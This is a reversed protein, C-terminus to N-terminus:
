NILVVTKLKLLEFIGCNAWDIELVNDCGGMRSAATVLSHRVSADVRAVGGRTWDDATARRM